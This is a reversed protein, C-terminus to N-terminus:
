LLEVLLTSFGFNRAALGKGSVPDYYERFGYREVARALSQVIRDAEEGYGLSRM